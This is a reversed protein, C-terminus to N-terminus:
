SVLYIYQDEYYSEEKQLKQSGLYLEEVNLVHKINCTDNFSYCNQLVLSEVKNFTIGSKVQSVCELSKYNKRM